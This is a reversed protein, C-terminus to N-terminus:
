FQPPSVKETELEMMNNIGAYAHEKQISAQQFDCPEPPHGSPLELPKIRYPLKPKRLLATCSKDGVPTHGIRGNHIGNIKTSAREINHIFRQNDQLFLCSHCSVLVSSKAAKMNMVPVM